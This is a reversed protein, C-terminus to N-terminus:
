TASANATVDRAFRVLYGDPDQVLVALQITEVDDVLYRTERLSRFPAIGLEELRNALAAPDGHEIELNIGRGFPRDLDGTLWSTENRVELMVQARGQRLMVFDPDARRYMVEFGLVDTWFRLSAEFDSVVLEPIVPAWNQDNIPM